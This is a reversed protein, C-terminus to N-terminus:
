PKSPTPPLPVSAIVQRTLSKCVDWFLEADSRRLLVDHSLQKQPHIYNRYDRLVKSVEKASRSIWSLEHAVDIYHQLTWKPLPLAKGTDKDKPASGSKFVKSKDDERNVRALLLAELLGGMMVTAALPADTQTCAICESWRRLLIEQMASDLILTGFAPPRDSTPPQASLAAFALARESKLAVLAVRVTKLRTLYGKRMASGDCAGLMFKYNEDIESLDSEGVALKMNDRHTGFWSYATSQILKTEVNSQVQPSSRMSLVSRLKKAEKIASDVAIQAANM